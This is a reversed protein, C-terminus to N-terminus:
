VIPDSHGAVVPIEKSERPIDLRFGFVPRFTKSLPAAMM